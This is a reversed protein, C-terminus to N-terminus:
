KKLICENYGVAKAILFDSKGSNEAPLLAHSPTSALYYM